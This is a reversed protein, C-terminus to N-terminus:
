CTFCLVALKEILHPMCACCLLLSTTLKYACPRLACDSHNEKPSPSHVSLLLSSSTMSSSHGVLFSFRGVLFSFSLTECACSRQCKTLLALMMLCCFSDFVQKEPDDAFRENKAKETIHWLRNQLPYRTKPM